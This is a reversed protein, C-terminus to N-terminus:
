RALHLAREEAARGRCAAADLEAVARRGVGEDHEWGGTPALVVAVRDRDVGAGRPTRVDSEVRM